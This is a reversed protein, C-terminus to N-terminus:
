RKDKGDKKDEKDKEEPKPKPKGTQFEFPEGQLSKLKNRQSATLIKLVEDNLQVQLNKLEDRLENTSLQEKRAHNRLDQLAVAFEKKCQELEKIQASSLELEKALSEIGDNERELAQYRIQKLRDIQEPKLVSEIRETEFKRIEAIGDLLQQKIEQQKAESLRPSYENQYDRFQLEIRNQVESWLGVLNGVQDETMKLDEAVGKFKLAYSMGLKFEHQMKPQAYGISACALVILLAMMLPKHM